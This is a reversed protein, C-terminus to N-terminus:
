DDDANEPKHPRNPKDPKRKDREPPGSPKATVHHTPQPANDIVEATTAFGTQFGRLLPLALMGILILALAITRLSVTSKDSM